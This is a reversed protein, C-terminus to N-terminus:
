ILRLDDAFCASNMVRILFVLYKKNTRSENKLVLVRRLYNVIRLYDLIEKFDGNQNWGYEKLSRM